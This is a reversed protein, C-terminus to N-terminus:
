TVDRKFDGYGCKCAAMSVDHAKTHMDRGVYGESTM